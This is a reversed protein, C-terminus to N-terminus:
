PQVGIRYFRAGGSVVNTQSMPAGTAIRTGDLLWPGTPATASEMRYIRGPRTNWRLIVAESHRSIETLRLVSGAERLDTGARFEDRNIVGDGDFDATGDSPDYPDLALIKEWSDPIGDLDADVPTLPVTRRGFVVVGMRPLTVCASNPLGDMPPGNAQVRGGNGRNDGGYVAADSNFVELWEGGLPM